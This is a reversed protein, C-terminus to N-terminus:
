NILSDIQLKSRTSALPRIAAGNNDIIVVEAAHNLRHDRRRDKLAHDHNQLIFSLPHVASNVKNSEPMQVENAHTGAKNNRDHHDIQNSEHEAQM